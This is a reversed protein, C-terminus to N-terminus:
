SSLVLLMCNTRSVLYDCYLSSISSLIFLRFFEMFLMWASISFVLLMIVASARLVPRVSNSSSSSQPLVLSFCICNCKKMNLKMWYIELHYLTKWLARGLINQTNFTNDTANNQTLQIGPALAFINFFAIIVSWRTATASLQKRRSSHQM